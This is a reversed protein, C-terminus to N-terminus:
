QSTVLESQFCESVFHYPPNAVSYCLGTRSLIKAAAVEKARWDTPRATRISEPGLCLWDLLSDKEIKKKNNRVHITSFYNPQSQWDSKISKRGVIPGVACRYLTSGTTWISWSKCLGTWKLGCIPGLFDTVHHRSGMPLALSMQTNGFFPTGRFWSIWSNYIYYTKWILGEM